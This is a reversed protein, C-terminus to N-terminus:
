NKKQNEHRGFLFWNVSLAVALSPIILFLNNVKHVQIRSNIIAMFNLNPSYIDLLFYHLFHSFLIALLYSKYFQNFYVYKYLVFMITIPLLFFLPFMYFFGLLGAIPSALLILISRTTFTNWCSYYNQLFFYIIVYVYYYLLAHIVWVRFISSKNKKM